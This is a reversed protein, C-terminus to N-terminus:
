VRCADLGEDVTRIAIGRRGAAALAHDLLRRSCGYYGPTDTVDHTYFILWGRSTLTQELMRDIGDRDIQRDILPTSKLFHLDVMGANVGPMISRGSRFRGGLWHKSQLSGVGFPYAFNKLEIASQLSGFFCRNREIDAAMARRDMDVVQRHSYTHCALEHGRRHLVVLDDVDALAIEDIEAGVTSGSVYFTGRGERAELASAGATVASRPVDDFTFSVIPEDNRLRRRALPVHM